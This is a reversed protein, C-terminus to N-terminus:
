GPLPEPPRRDHWPSAQELQGAVRFLVDEGGFRGTLMTGIPLGEQWDLPLSISPQGTFNAIPNWPNFALDTTWWERAGGYSQNLVGLLAPPQALTPTLWLDYTEFFAAIRRAELQMRGIAGALGVATTAKGLEVLEWTTPELEDPEPERGLMSVIADHSGANGVAWVVVMDDALVGADFTPAAPVVEHGLGELLAATREVAAACAPDVPVGTPALATWGIRLRGPDASVEALYPGTPAPATSPDGPAPGHAIDLLVACDRVSRTVAHVVALGFLPEGSDPAWSIRGRTPKLGVLGCCSAPIRISGAGDSSGAAPVIGAAM